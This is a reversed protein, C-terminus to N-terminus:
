TFAAPCGPRCARARGPWGRSRLIGAIEAAVRCPEECIDAWGYRLTVIGMTASANDRRVDLWRTEVPHAIQGDLEVAVAYEQYENDLYRTRGGVRSIAQRKASPLGHPREVRHVYRWELPSHLGEDIDTLADTLETRWRLRDRASVSALLLGATTLRRGCAAMLWSLAKDLNPSVQILDITTEEIRTRPPLRVPHRAEDIRTYRHFVIKPVRQADRGSAAIRRTPEVAVHVCNSPKDVLGDLEAATHYSLAAGPGGRLVAAWQVAMQSPQGTFTAYVGRYLTVWRGTRLQPDIVRVNMGTAAVQWRAIVGQQLELLEQCPDPIQIAV